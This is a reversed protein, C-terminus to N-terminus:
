IVHSRLSNQQLRYQWLCILPFVFLEFFTAAVTSTELGLVILGWLRGLGGVFTLLSFCRLDTGDHDINPLSRLLLIGMAVSLGCIYCLNSVFMMPYNYPKVLMVAEYFLSYLGGFISIIAILGVVIQLALCQNTKM